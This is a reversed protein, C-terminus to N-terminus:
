CNLHELVVVKAIEPKLAKSNEVAHKTETAEDTKWDNLFEACLHRKHNSCKTVCKVDGTEHKGCLFCLGLEVLQSSLGVKIRDTIRTAATMLPNLAAISQTAIPCYMEIHVFSFFLTSNLLM